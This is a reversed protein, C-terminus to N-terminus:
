GVLDEMDMDVGFNRETSVLIWLVKWPKVMRWAAAAPPLTRMM